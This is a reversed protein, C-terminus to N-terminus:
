TTKGFHKTGAAIDHYEERKGMSFRLRVGGSGTKPWMCDFGFLPATVRRLKYAKAVDPRERRSIEAPIEHGTEDVVAIRAPLIRGDWVRVFAWGSCIMSNDQCEQRDIHYQIRRVRIWESEPVIASGAETGGRLLDALATARTGMSRQMNRVPLAGSRIYDQFHEEMGAYVAAARETIGALAYLEQLSWQADYLGQYYAFYLARYLIFERPVPFGFTWEYDIVEWVGSVGDGIAQDDWSAGARAPEEDWSANERGSLLINPFILDIDSVGACPLGEEPAQDGFVERFEETVRFPVEGGATGIRRIYERLIREVRARDGRGAAEELLEQLTAGRLFPFEARVAGAPRDAGQGPAGNQPMPSDSSGAERSQPTEELPYLRCPCFRIGRGAEEGKGGAYAKTLRQYADAIGAIHAEAEGCQAYKYVRKRGNEDQVIDTRIAFRAARENSYKSYITREM